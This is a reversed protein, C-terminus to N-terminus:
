AKKASERARKAKMHRMHKEARRRTPPKIAGPADAGEDFFKLYGLLKNLECNRWGRHYETLERTAYDLVLDKYYLGTEIHRTLRQFFTMYYHDREGELPPDGDRPPIKVPLVARMEELQARMHRSREDSKGDLEALKESILAELGRHGCYFDFFIPRGGKRYNEAKPKKRDRRQKRKERDSQAKPM